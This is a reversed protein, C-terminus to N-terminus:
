CRSRGPLAVGRHRARLQRARAADAPGAARRDAPLPDRPRELGLADALAGAGPASRAAAGSRRLARRAPVRRGAGQGGRPRGHDQRHRGARRDHHLAPAAAAGDAGGRQRRPRDHRDDAGASAPAATPPPRRRSVGPEDTRSCRRSSATAGAPCRRWIAIAAAATAWRGGCARRGPGESQGGRRVHEALGSGDAREQRGARGAARGARDPDGFRPQRAARARDGELLLLRTPLLRFPGFAVTPEASAAARVASAVPDAQFGHAPVEGRLSPPGNAGLFRQHITPGVTIM